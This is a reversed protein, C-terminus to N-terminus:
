RHGRLIIGKWFVNEVQFGVMVALDGKLDGRISKFNYEPYFHEDKHWRMGNYHVYTMGSGFFLLDNSGNSGISLYGREGMKVEENTLYTSHKSFYNYKWVGGGTAFYVTDDVIHSSWIRGFEDVDPERLDTYILTNIQNQAIELAVSATVGFMNTYGTIFIYDGDITGDIDILDVDTGSEMKIFENGNYHVISGKRGVFYMNNSSTGWIANIYGADIGMDHLRYLTWESGDWYTPYGGCSVWIDNENFYQISNIIAGVAYVLELDWKLGDWKALNYWGSDTIIEGVVWIDNEDVIWVDNLYSGYEGLTDIEWTFNHSTTDMTTVTLTESEGIRETGNKWYGKYTYSTNPNLGTDKLLTDSQLSLTQVTSDDRTLEFTFQALSDEPSINLNVTTVGASHLSLTFNTNQEDEFLFCSSFFLICIYIIKM